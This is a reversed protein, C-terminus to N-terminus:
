WRMGKEKSRSIMWYGTLGIWAETIIHPPTFTVRYDFLSWVWMTCFLIWGSIAIGPRVLARLERMRTPLDTAKGEYDLTIKAHELAIKEAEMRLKPDSKIGGLIEEVAGSVRSDGGFIKGLTGKIVPGLLPALLGIM